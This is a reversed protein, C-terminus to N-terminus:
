CESCVCVWAGSAASGGARVGVDHGCTSASASASGFASASTSCCDVDGSAEDVGESVGEAISSRASFAFLVTLVLSVDCSGLVLMHLLLDDRFFVCSASYFGGRVLVGVCMRFSVGGGCGGFCLLLLRGM